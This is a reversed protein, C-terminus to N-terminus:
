QQGGERALGGIPLPVVEMPRHKAAMEVVAEIAPVQIKDLPRWQNKAVDFIGASERDLTLFFLSVRGMRFIDGLVESGDMNIKERYVEVTNGYEAEVLLAEMVKRYKEAVTIDDDNLIADLRLLRANREERLFPADSAVLTSLRAVTEKLFPSLETRIRLAEEKEATLGANEKELSVAKGTLNKNTFVLQGNEDKLRDYEEALKQRETDWKERAEQTAQRTDVAKDVPAEIDKTVSTRAHGLSADWILIQVCILLAAALGTGARKLRRVIKNTETEMIKGKMLM